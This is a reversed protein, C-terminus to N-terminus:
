LSCTWASFGGELNQVNTFGKKKLVDLAIAGRGGSKCHVVVPKDTPVIGQGLDRILKGLPINVAGEIHGQAFEDPERVDLIYYIKSNKKLEAASITENM